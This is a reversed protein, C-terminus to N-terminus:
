MREWVSDGCLIRALYEPFRTNDLPKGLFGDFGQQQVLSMESIHVTCAVIPINGLHERLVNKVAYGHMNPMELDLFVVDVAGLTPLLVAVERPDTIQTCQFGERQLLKMLVKGNQPNDDIVLAHSM